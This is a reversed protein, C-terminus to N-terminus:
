AYPGPRRHLGGTTRIVAWCKKCTVAAADTTAIGEVEARHAAEVDGPNCAVMGHRNLFHLDRKARKNARRWSTM